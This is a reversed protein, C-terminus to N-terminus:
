GRQRTCCPSLRACVCVCVPNDYFAMDQNLLSQFAEVRLKRTLREGAKGFLWPQLFYGIGAAGAIVFLMGMWFLADHRLESVVPNYMTRILSSFIIAFCQLSLLM